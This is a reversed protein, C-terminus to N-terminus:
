GPAIALRQRRPGWTGPRAGLRGALRRGCALCAGSADLRWAGLAYGSREILATGCGACYTSQGAADRVNGTYVHRLGAALAQARARSLTAPPTPPVDRMKWDPHFATFHLPV